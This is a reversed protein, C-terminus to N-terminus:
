YEVLLYLTRSTAGNANYLKVYRSKADFSLPSVSLWFRPTSSVAVGPSASSLWDTASWIYNGNIDCPIIYANGTSVNDWATLLKPTRVTDFFGDKKLGMDLVVGTSPALTVYYFRPAQALASSSMLGLILVALLLKKM